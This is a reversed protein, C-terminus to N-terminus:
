TELRAGAGAAGQDDEAVAGAGLLGEEFSGNELLESWLGGYTSHGIPELFSGFITAPIPGSQLEGAHVRVHVPQDPAGHTEDMIQGLAFAAGLWLVSVAVFTALM